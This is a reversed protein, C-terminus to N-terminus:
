AVEGGAAFQLPFTLFESLGDPRFRVEAFSADAAYPSGIIHNAFPFIPSGYHKWLVAM